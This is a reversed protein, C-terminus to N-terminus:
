QTSTSLESKLAKQCIQRKQKNTQKNTIHEEEKHTIIIIIIQTHIHTYYRKQKKYLKWQWKSSAIIHVNNPQNYKNPIKNSLSHRHTHTHWTQYDTTKDKNNSKMKTSTNHKTTPM